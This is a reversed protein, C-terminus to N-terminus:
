QAKCHGGALNSWENLSLFPIHLAVPSRALRRTVRLFAVAQLSGLASLIAAEVLPAQRADTTSCGQFRAPILGFRAFRCPLSSGAHGWAAPLPKDQRCRRMRGATAEDQMCGEASGWCFLASPCQQTEQPFPHSSPTGPFVSHDWPLQAWAPDKWRKSMLKMAAMLVSVENVAQLSHWYLTHTFLLDIHNHSITIVLM